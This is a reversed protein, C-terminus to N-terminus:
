ITGRLHSTDAGFLHGFPTAFEVKIGHGQLWSSWRFIDHLTPSIGVQYDDPEEMDEKHFVLITACLGVLPKNWITIIAHTSQRLAKRIDGFIKM